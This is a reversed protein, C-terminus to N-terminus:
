QKFESVQQYTQDGIAADLLELIGSVEICQVGKETCISTGSAATHHTVIWTITRCRWCMFVATPSYHHQNQMVLEHM